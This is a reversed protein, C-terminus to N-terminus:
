VLNINRDNDNACIERAARKRENDQKIMQDIEYNCRKLENIGVFFQKSLFLAEMDIVNSM